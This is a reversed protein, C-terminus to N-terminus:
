ANFEFLFENKFDVNFDKLLELYEDKFNTTKHHEKQNLIYAIIKDTDWRSYSFAGFGEQWHFKGKDLLRQNIFDNTSKKIERALDSICCSPKISLFIHVHDPMGNIALLFQDKRQIIGTIYKYLEEEWKPSILNERGKVGFVIHIYIQSYTNAMDRSYHLLLLM